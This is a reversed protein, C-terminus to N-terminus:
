VPKMADLTVREKTPVLNQAKSPGEAKTISAIIREHTVLMAIDSNVGM